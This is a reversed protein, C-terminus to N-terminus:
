SLSLFLSFNIMLRKKAKKSAALMDRAEQANMAMPKECLVHCGAKFAALTLPKHFKNPTAISVVDLEEKKLMEDASTYLGPIKFEKAGRDELRKPDTDAVAVVEAEPHTKYGNIHASGMGLGVVGVRLKKM